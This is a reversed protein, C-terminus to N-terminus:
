YSARYQLENHSLLTELEAHCLSVDAIRKFNVETILLL